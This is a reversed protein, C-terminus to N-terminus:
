YLGIAPNDELLKALMEDSLHEAVDHKSIPRHSSSTVAPRFLVDAERFEHPVETTEERTDVVGKGKASDRPPSGSPEVSDGRAGSGSAEGSSGGVTM